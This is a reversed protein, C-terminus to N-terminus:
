VPEPEPVMRALARQFRSAAARYRPSARGERLALVHLAQHARDFTSGQLGRVAIFHAVPCASAEVPRGDGTHIGRWMSALAGLPTRPALRDFRWGTGRVAAPLAAAPMPRGLAYGQGVDAGLVVAAEVMDASELGEAVVEIELDHGLQVLAGLFSITRAPARRVGRLLGQDLKVSRFPLARLRQLSSYGAGLDDMALEVGTQALAALAAATGDTENLARDETVELSLRAPAIGSEALADRVWLACDPRVLTAPSLNVSVALTLGLQDWCVLQRLAQSLGLRFLEDLERGGLAPLFQGPMVMSGDDQELRALAEVKATRGDALTVLPQYHLRLGGAFLQRRWAAATTEPVVAAAPGRRQQWLLSLSRAIGTCVHRTWAVQFQGPVGGLLILLAVPRDEADRVPLVTGSRVGLRCAAAHWPATRPDSQFSPAIRAENSRWSEALLGRGEPMAPDIAPVIQTAERIQAFNLGATSSSALVQFRGEADPRLLGVSLVGPLAALADLEDQAADVWPVDARPRRLLVDFYATLTEAAAEMQAASDDHLRATALAALNQRDIPRLPQGALLEALRSQYLGLAQMLLAGDVGILAHTQGVAYARARVQARDTDPDMLALLHAEQRTRLRDREAPSLSAMIPAALPQRTLDQYFRTLFGVTVSPWIADTERLLRQAEAGYPDDIGATPVAEQALDARWRQWNRSRAAKGAKAAYLAADARRLLIDADQGDEPFIAVGISLGIHAAGDELAFPIEIAQSLRELLGPLAESTGLDELALVFEDGGLRAVLDSRRLAERLRRAVERLIADGAHHGHRDNVPKFDDLDVLCVALPAGHRGARSLAHGLHEEFLLRNPLATLPDHRALHFQRSREQELSQKLDLADLGHGLLQAIRECLARVDPTFFGTQPSGLLLVAYLMGGRQVPAAAAARWGGEIFMPRYSALGADGMLDNQMMTHGARWARVLLAPPEDDLAFRELLLRAMGPGAGALPRMVGAEDPRAVWAVHFMASSSLQECTRQLMGTESRTQLMIEGASLLARHLAQLRDYDRQQDLAELARGVDVALEELLAVLETDLVGEEAAYVHLVAQPRGHLLLPLAVGAGLGFHRAAIHWAGLMNDPTFRQRVVTRAERWATGSLGRGEPLAPDASVFVHDLFGTAGAAAAPQFVDGADPAGIWALQVGGEDVAIRCIGEYLTATDPRAAALQNVQALMANFGTLRHMRATQRRQQEQLDLLQLISGAIAAGHELLRRIAPSPLGTAPGTLALTGILRAGQRVPHSWCSGIQLRSALARLGAWHPDTATDAVMVPTGFHIAAGCSGNRPGPALGDLAALMEAAVGGAGVPHLLGDTGLHMLIAVRGPAHHRILHCLRDALSRAGQGAAMDRLIRTQIRLLDALGPNIRDVRSLRGAARGAVAPGAAVPCTAGVSATAVGAASGGAAGAAAEPRGFVPAARTPLTDIACDGEPPM